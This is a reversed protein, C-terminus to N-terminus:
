DLFSLRWLMKDAPMSGVFEKSSPGFTEYYDVGLKTVFLVEAHRSLSGVFDQMKIKRHVSHIVYM